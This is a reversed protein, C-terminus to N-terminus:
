KAVGLVSFSKKLSIGGPSFEEEAMFEGMSV